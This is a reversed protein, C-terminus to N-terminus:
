PVMQGLGRVAAGLAASGLAVTASAKAAAGLQRRLGPDDALRRLAAAAAAIDPEAWLAGPADFVGRPDVAPVLRAPVPIGCTDDIFDVTGSWATAVVPKNLLM